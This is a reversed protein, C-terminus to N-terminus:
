VPAAASASLSPRSDVEAEVTVGNRLTQLVVCCNEAVTVLMRAKNEDIANGPQLRVRCRMRQFGVPVEPEVQLCGRVDCEATVEVVLSRLRIGLHDAVIRLTSDFCAALAASLLDGPNPHDHFGGVSRHVGFRLPVNGGNAPVVSGHFPDEDCADITHAGDNIWADAPVRRYRERLPGQRQAAIGTDRTGM